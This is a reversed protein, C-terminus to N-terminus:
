AVAAPDNEGLDVLVPATIARTVMPETTRGGLVDRNVFFGLLEAEADTDAMRLVPAQNEDRGAVIRRAFDPEDGGVIGRLRQREDGRALGVAFIMDVRRVPFQPDVGVVIM